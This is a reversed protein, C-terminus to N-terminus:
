TGIVTIRVCEALEIECDLAMLTRWWFDEASARSMCLGFDTFCGAESSQASGAVMVAVALVLLLKKRM